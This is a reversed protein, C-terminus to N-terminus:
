ASSSKIQRKKLKEGISGIAKSSRISYENLNVIMATNPIDLDDTKPVDKKTEDDGNRKM